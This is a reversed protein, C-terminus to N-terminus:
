MSPDAINVRLRCACWGGSSNGLACERYSLILLGQAIPLGHPKTLEASLLTKAAAAYDAGPASDSIAAADSGQASSAADGGLQDSSNGQLYRTAEAYICNLLFTSAHLGDFAPDRLFLPSYVAHLVPNVYRLFALVLDFLSTLSGAGDNANIRIRALHEWPRCMSASTAYERQEELEPAIASQTRALRGRALTPPPAEHVFATPGHYALDGHEDLSLHGFNDLDRLLEDSNLSNLSDPALSSADVTESLLPPSLRPETARRKARRPPALPAPPLRELEVPDYSAVLSNLNSAPDVPHPPIRAIVQEILSQSAANNFHLCTLIQRLIVVEQVLKAAMEPPLSRCAIKMGSDKGINWFPMSSTFANSTTSPAAQVLSLRMADFREVSALHAPSLTPDALAHGSM